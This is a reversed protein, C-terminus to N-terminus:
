GHSMLCVVGVGRVVCADAVWCGAGGEGALGVSM